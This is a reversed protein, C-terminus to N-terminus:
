FLLADLVLRCEYFVFFLLLLQHTKIIRLHVVLVVDSFLLLLLFLVLQPLDPVLVLCKLLKFVCILDILLVEQGVQVQLVLDINVIIFFDPIDM